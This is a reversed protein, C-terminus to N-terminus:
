QKLICTRATGQWRLGATDIRIEKRELNKSIINRHPCTRQLSM